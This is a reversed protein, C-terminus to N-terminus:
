AEFDDYLNSPAPPVPDEVTFTISAIISFNGEGDKSKATLTHSGAAPTGLSAKWNTTGVVTVPSADLTVIVLAVSINDASTGTALIPTGTPISLGETPYTVAITPAVAPEIVTFNSVVSLSTNGNIDKAKATVKHAGNALSIGTFTVTWNTSTAGPNDLTASKFSGSGFSAYVKDVGVDDTATGTVTLTTPDFSPSSIIEAADAPSGIVVVPLTEDTATIAFTLVSSYAVNNSSDTARLQVSHTAVVLGTFASQVTWTVGAQTLSKIMALEIGLGADTLPVYDTSNISMEVDPFGDNGNALGRNDFVTASILVSNSPFGSPHTAAIDTIVPPTIDPALPPLQTGDVTSPYGQLSGYMTISTTAKGTLEKLLVPWTSPGHKKVLRTPDSKSAVMIVTKVERRDAMGFDLSRWKADNFIITFGTDQFPDKTTFAMPFTTRNEMEILEAQSDFTDQPKKFKFSATRKVVELARTEGTENNVRSALKQEIIYRGDTFGFYPNGGKITGVEQVVDGNGFPAAFGGNGTFIPDGTFSKFAQVSYIYEPPTTVIVEVKSLQCGVFTYFFNGDDSIRAFILSFTRGYVLNHVLIANDYPLFRMNKVVPELKLQTSLSSNLNGAAKVEKDVPMPNIKAEQIPSGLPRFIATSDFVGPEQEVAWFVDYEVGLIYVM